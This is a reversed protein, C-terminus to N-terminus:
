SRPAYLLKVGGKFVLVDGGPEGGERRTLRMRGAEIRGAPGAATVAGTTEAWTRDLAAAVAATEIRWGDSSTLVVGGSLVLIGGAPDLRAETAEARYATGEATTLELVPRAASGAGADAASRASDATLRVEAGDETMGAFAPATMRPERLLAQVEAEAFPLAGTRPGRSFLFLTSLLALAALPLAVRLTAVVRSHLGGDAPM